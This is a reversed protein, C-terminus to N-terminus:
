HHEHHKYTPPYKNTTSDAHLADGATSRTVTCGFKTITVKINKLGKTPANEGAEIGDYEFSFDQSYTDNSIKCCDKGGARVYWGCSWSFSAPLNMSQLDKLRIAQKEDWRWGISDHRHINHANPRMRLKGPTHVPKFGEPDEAREMISINSFSVTQPLFTVALKSSAGPRDKERDLPYDKIREGSHEATISSPIVITFVSPTREPLEEDLSTKVRVKLTTKETLDSNITLTAQNLNEISKEIIAADEPELSWELSKLDVDKLRKGNLTLTVVEGIGVETRKKDDDQNGGEILCQPSVIDTKSEIYLSCNDTPPEEEAHVPALMAYLFVAVFSITFSLSNM